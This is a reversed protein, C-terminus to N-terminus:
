SLANHPISPQYYLRIISPDVTQRATCALKERTNSVDLNGTPVGLSSPDCKRAEFLRIGPQGSHTFFHGGNQGCSPYPGRQYCLRPGRRALLKSGQVAAFYPEMTIILRRYAGISILLAQIPAVRHKTRPGTADVSRDADKGVTAVLTSPTSRRGCPQRRAQRGQAAHVIASPARLSDSSPRCLPTNDFYTPLNDIYVMSNLFNPLEMHQNALQLL